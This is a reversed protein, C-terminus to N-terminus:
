STTTPLHARQWADFGGDVSYVQQLGQNILYQAAGQSSIGHYCMVLVPQTLSHKEIFLALTDNSLHIAHQAHAQAFSQPDRIDVMTAQSQELLRQASHVDIHEFQTMSLNEILSSLNSWM